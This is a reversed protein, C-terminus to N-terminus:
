LLVTYNLLFVVMATGLTCDQFLWASTLQALSPCSCARYKITKNFKTQGNYYRKGMSLWEGMNLCKCHETQGTTTHAKGM